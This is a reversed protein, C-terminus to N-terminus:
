DDVESVGPILGWVTGSWRSDENQITDMYSLRGSVRPSARKIDIGLRGATLLNNCGATGPTSMGEDM